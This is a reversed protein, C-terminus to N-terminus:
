LSDDDIESSSGHLDMAAPCIFVPSYCGDIRTFSSDPSATTPLRTRYGEDDTIPTSSFINPNSYWGSFNCSNPPTYPESINDNDGIFIMMDMSHIVLQDRYNYLWKRIDSMTRCNEMMFRARKEINKHHYLSDRQIDDIDIHRFVQSITDEELIATEIVFSLVRHANILPIYEGGLIIM